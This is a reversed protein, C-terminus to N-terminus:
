ESEAKKFEIVLRPNPAASSGQIIKAYRETAGGPMRLDYQLVIRALILKIENAAFFRGPCAHRGYGFGM